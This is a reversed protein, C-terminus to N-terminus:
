IRRYAKFDHVSVQKEKPPFKMYDGYIQSLYEDYKLPANYFKGEFPLETNGEFVIHRCVEKERYGWILIGAGDTIEDKHVLCLDEHKKLIKKVPYFCLVTKYFALKITKFFSKKKRLSENKIYLLSRWFGLKKILKKSSNIDINDIPFIDINVGIDCKRLTDEYLLTDQDSLKIYPFNYEKNNTYHYLKYKGQANNFIRLLKEYDTRLMMLDIDDDWPIYGKHRVAGLLTGGCLFYNIKNELCFQVFYNLIDLQKSKLEENTLENNQM